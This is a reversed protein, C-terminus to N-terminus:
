NITSVCVQRVEQILPKEKTQVPYALGIEKTLNLGNIDLLHIDKDSTIERWNPLLTAGIGASVLEKAYEITRINARTQFHVGQHSMAEKLREQAECPSRYIFTMANLESVELAKRNAFSWQSPIALKYEDQWIPLFDENPKISSALIIRADCPEQPDVLTLELNEIKESLQKLLYSIRKVGLSRMLGLKLPAPSPEDNFLAFISNAGAKMEKAIPYLKDAAVTPIVGRAHRRFLKINLLSELQQIATTISPQSVFCQRAAGSISGLEYVSIFYNLARLEM